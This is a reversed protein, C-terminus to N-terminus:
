VGEELVDFPQEAKVVDPGEKRFFLVQFTYRGPRPFACKVAFLMPLSEDDSDFTLSFNSRFVIKETQDHVVQVHGPFTGPRPNSFLVYLYLSAPRFPFQGARLYNRVGKLDFVDSETTSPKARDCVVMVRVRPTIAAGSM